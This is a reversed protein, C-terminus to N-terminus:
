RILGANRMSFLKTGSVLIHDVIRIGLTNCADSLVQTFVIDAKSPYPNGSPHNHSLVINASGISVAIRLLKRINIDISSFTGSMDMEDVIYNMNSDLFFSILTEIRVEKFRSILYKTTRDDSLDFTSRRVDEHLSEMMAARACALISALAPECIDEVLPQNAASLVSGISGFRAILSDSIELARDADVFHVLDALM